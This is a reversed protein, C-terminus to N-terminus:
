IIILWETRQIEECSKKGERATGGGSEGGLGERGLDDDRDIM